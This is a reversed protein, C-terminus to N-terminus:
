ATSRRAQLVRPVGSYDPRIGAVIWKHREFLGRVAQAQGAGLEVFLAGGPALWHPAEASLLRYIELGDPGGDLAERPDHDRVEPELTAIEATAIYPPNSVILAFARREPLAAFGAGLHFQIRTHVGHALANDRALSLAAESIDLAEGTAGSCQATLTVALCGSGTGFDLFRREQEPLSALFALAEEALIETEPRPILAQSSARLELGCFNVSGLIHQLPERRGRRQIASRAQETQAATLERDFQLYLQLRRVELAQAVLWEAQLRPSDVGRAALFEAGRRIAELVTM